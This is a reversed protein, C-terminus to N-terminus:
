EPPTRCQARDLIFDLFGSQGSLPIVIGDPQVEAGDVAEPPPCLCLADPAQILHGVDVSQDLLVDGM